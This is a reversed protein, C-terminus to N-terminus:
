PCAGGYQVSEQSKQCLLPLSFMNRKGLFVELVEWAFGGPFATKFNHLAGDNTEENQDFLPSEWMLMMYNGYEINDDLTFKRGGNSSVRFKQVDVTGWDQFSFHKHCSM